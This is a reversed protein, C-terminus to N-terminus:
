VCPWYSTAEPCQLFIQPRHFLSVLSPTPPPIASDKATVLLICLFSEKYSCLLLLDRLHGEASSHIPDTKTNEMCPSMHSVAFPLLPDQWYSHIRWVFPCPFRPLLHVYHSWKNQKGLWMCFCIIMNLSSFQEYDFELPFYLSSLGWKRTTTEVNPLSSAPFSLPALPSGM